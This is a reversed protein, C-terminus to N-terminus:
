LGAVKTAALVQLVQLCIVSITLRPGLSGPHALNWQVYQINMFIHMCIYMHIYMHVYTHVYTCTYTCLYACVYTCIYTCVYTHGWLIYQVHKYSSRTNGMGMGVMRRGWRVEAGIGVMSRGWGVETGVMSWEWGMEAGIGVM